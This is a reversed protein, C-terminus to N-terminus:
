KLLAPLLVGGLILVAILALIVWSWRNGFNLTYGVGFRKPLFLAPDDRNFYLIGGLWCEDPTRDGSPAQVPTVTEIVVETEGRARHRATVVLALILAPAFLISLVAVVVALWSVQSPTLLPSLLIASGIMAIFYETALLAGVMRRRYRRERESEPGSVATRLPSRIIGYAILFIAICLLLLFVPPGFVHVPSLTTWVTPNGHFDYRLPLRSPLNGWHLITWSTVAILALMPLSQFVPGGPLSERRAVLLAERFGSPAVHFAKSSKYSALYAPVACLLLLAPALDAVWFTFHFGAWAVFALSLLTAGLVRIRYRFLIKKANESSRFTGIVTVGFYIERRTLHPMILLLAGLLVTFSAMVATTGLAQQDFM